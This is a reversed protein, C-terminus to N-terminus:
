ANERDGVGSLPHVGLRLRADELREERRLVDALARPEAEGAHVARNGLASAENASSVSGPRPDVNMTWRGSASAAVGRLLGGLRWAARRRRRMREDDVVLLDHALERGANELALAELDHRGGVAEHRELDDASRGVRDVHEHGVHRHGAHAAPLERRLDRLEGRAHGDDEHRPVRVLDEPRIGSSRVGSVNRAFGNEGRVSTCATRSATAHSGPRQAAALRLRLDHLVRGGDGAHDGVVM